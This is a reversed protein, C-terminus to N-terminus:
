RRFYSRLQEVIGHDRVYASTWEVEECCLPDGEKGEKGRERSGEDWSQVKGESVRGLVRMAADFGDQLM